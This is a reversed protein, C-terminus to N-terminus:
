KICILGSSGDPACLALQSFMAWTSYTYRIVRQSRKARCTLLHIESRVFCSTCFVYLMVNILSFVHPLILYLPNNLSAFAHTAYAKERIDEQNIYKHTKASIFFTTLQKFCIHSLFAPFIEVNIIRHKNSAQHM